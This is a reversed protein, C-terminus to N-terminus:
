SFFQSSDAALAFARGADRYPLTASILPRLDVLGKNLLDVAM